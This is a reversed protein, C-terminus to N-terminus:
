ARGSYAVLHVPTSATDSILKFSRNGGFAPGVWVLTPASSSVSLTVNGDGSPDFTVAATAHITQAYVLEAGAPVAVTSATVGITWVGGDPFQGNANDFSM